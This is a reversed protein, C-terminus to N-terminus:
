LFLVFNHTLHPLVSTAPVDINMFKWVYVCTFHSNLFKRPYIPLLCEYSLQTAFHKKPLYAWFASTKLSSTAIGKLCLIQVVRLVCSSAAMCKAMCFNAVYSHHCALNKDWSLCIARDDRDGWHVQHPRTNVFNFRDQATPSKIYCRNELSINKLSQEDTPPYM